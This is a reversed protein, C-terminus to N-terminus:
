RGEDDSQQKAQPHILYFQKTKEQFEKRLKIDLVMCKCFDAYSQNGRNFFYHYVNSDFISNFLIKWESNVEDYNYRAIVNDLKTDISRRRRASKSSMKNVKFLQFIGCRTGTRIM